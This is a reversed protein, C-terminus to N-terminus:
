VLPWTAPIPMPVKMIIREINNVIMQHRAHRVDELGYSYLAAPISIGTMNIM